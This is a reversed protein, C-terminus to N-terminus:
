SLFNPPPCQVEGHYAVYVDYSHRNDHSLKYSLIIHDNTHHLWEESVTSSPAKEETSNALPNSEENDVPASKSEQKALEKQSSYVYPLSVTLWALTFFMVAAAVIHKLKYTPMNKMRAVFITYSLSFSFREHILLHNIVFLHKKYNKQAKRFIIM